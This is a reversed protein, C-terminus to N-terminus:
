YDYIRILVSKSKVFSLKEIERVAKRVKGEQAAHTLMLIPVGGGIRCGPPQFLSAISVDYRGLIGSIRSLVGPRDATSFRLYYRSCFEEPKKLSITKNKNHTVCPLRGATGEAVHRSVFILDSVVASAAAMQGAGKGYFMVDDVADGDIIVANYENRVNVFPHALSLFAPHVRLEIRGDHGHYAIGMLKIGFGFEKRAIQLDFLDLHSIGECYVDSIKVWGGFAISALIALKHASDVGDIDTSPDAEAFGAKRAQELAEQFPLGEEMKTLIYNTTGNLIGVIKRIRNAAMGENLGQIVPVGGGVAAEFYVLRKHKEATSLILDWYKALVAKNATVVHKGSQLAELIITRAPEYGGVLEVVVDISPDRLIERYDRVVQSSTIGAEPRSRVKLDCCKVIRVDSEARRRIEAGNRKLIKAVGTGVTGLGIVGIGVGNM